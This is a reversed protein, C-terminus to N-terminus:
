PQELGPSEVPLGYGEAAALLRRDYAVVASLDDLEAASAIHLADLTRVDPPPLAAARTLAEPTLELRDVRALLRVAREVAAPSVRAALRQLEVAGVVNTLRPVDRRAALWARLAASEKERVLLKALASTDLYVTM